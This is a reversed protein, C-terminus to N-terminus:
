LYSLVLDLLVDDKRLAIWPAHPFEFPCFTHFPIEGIRKKIWLVM